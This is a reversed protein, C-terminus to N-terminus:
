LLFRCVLASILSLIVTSILWGCLSNIKNWLKQHWHLELRFKHRNLLDYVRGQKNYGEQYYQLALDTDITENIKANEITEIIEERLTIYEKWFTANDDVWHTDFHMEEYKNVHEHFIINLQKFCDYWLRKIHGDAKCLEKYINDLNSENLYCRAVHDNIARIENVIGLVLGTQGCRKKLDCLFPKLNNYSIIITNFLELVLDKTIKTDSM